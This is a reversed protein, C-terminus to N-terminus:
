TLALLSKIPSKVQLAVLIISKNAPVLTFIRGCAPIATTYKEDRDHSVATILAADQKELPFDLRM